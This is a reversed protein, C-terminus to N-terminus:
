GLSYSVLSHLLLAQPWGAATASGGSGRSVRDLSLGKSSLAKCSGSATDTELLAKLLVWGLWGAHM